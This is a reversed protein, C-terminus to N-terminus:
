VGRSNCGPTRGPALVLLRGGESEVRHPGRRVRGNGDCSDPMSERRILTLIPTDLAGTSSQGARAWALAHHSGMPGAGMAIRELATTLM